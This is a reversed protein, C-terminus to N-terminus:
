WYHLSLGRLVWVGRVAFYMRIYRCILMVNQRRKNHICSNRVANADEEWPPEKFERQRAIGQSHTQDTTRTEITM